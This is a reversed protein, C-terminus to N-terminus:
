DPEAGPQAFACWCAARTRSIAPPSVARRHARRADAHAMVRPGEDLTVLVLTYPALARFADSPARSVVTVAHVTAMAAPTWAVRAARQRVCHACAYRALTQARPRLRHLGPLAARAARPRRRLARGSRTAVTPAHDCRRAVAGPERALVDRRRRCARLRAAPPAATARGGAGDDAACAEVAHAMGGAVGCHGFSLLGGHTNLPLPGGADSTVTSARARRAQGRPAFGIEELLMALTITFSDYIGLCDIDAAVGLGAEGFARSAAEAAGCQMVDAMASLHQHRHAQGAGALPSVRAEGERPESVVLAMAGDSIPCCDLLKLPTAIPKSALVDAV